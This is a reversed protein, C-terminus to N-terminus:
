FFFFLVEYLCLPAESVTGTTFFRGAVAPSMSAPEIGPDSLDGPPSFPFGSGSNMGPYDWPCLRM